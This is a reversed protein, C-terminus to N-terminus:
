APVTDYKIVSMEELRGLHIVCFGGFVPIHKCVSRADQAVRGKGLARPQACRYLQRCVPGLTIEVELVGAHPEPDFVGEPSQLPLELRQLVPNQKTQIRGLSWQRTRQIM